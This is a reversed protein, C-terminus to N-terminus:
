EVTSVFLKVFIIEERDLVDISVTEFQNVADIKVVFQTCIVEEGESVLLNRETICHTLCFSELISDISSNSNLLKFICLFLLLFDIIHRFNVGLCATTIILNLGM